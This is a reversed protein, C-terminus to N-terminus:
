RTREDIQKDKLCLTSYPLALLRAKAIPNGCNECIGYTGRDIANIAHYGISRHGRRVSRHDVDVDVVREHPRGTRLPNRHAAHRIM